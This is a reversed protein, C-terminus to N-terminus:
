IEYTLKIITVILTAMLIAFTIDAIENIERQKKWYSM